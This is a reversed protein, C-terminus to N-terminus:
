KLGPLSIRSRTLSLRCLPYHLEKRFATQTRDYERQSRRVIHAGSTGSIFANERHNCNARITSAKIKPRQNASSILTTTGTVRIPNDRGLKGRPTHSNTKPASPSRNPKKSLASDCNLSRRCSLDRSRCRASHSFSNVLSRAYGRLSQAGHHIKPQKEQYQNRDGDAKQQEPAGSALAGM